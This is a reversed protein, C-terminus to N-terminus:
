SHMYNCKQQKTDRYNKDSKYSCLANINEIYIHSM